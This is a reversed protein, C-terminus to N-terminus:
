TCKNKQGFQWTEKLLQIQPRTRHARSSRAIEPKFMNHNKQIVPAWINSNSYVLLCCDGVPPLWFPRRCFGGQEELALIVLGVNKAAGHCRLDWPSSICTRPPGDFKKRFDVCRKPGLDEWHGWTIIGAEPSDGAALCRSLRCLLFGIGTWELLVGMSSTAENWKALRCNGVLHSLLPFYVPNSQYQVFLLTPNM